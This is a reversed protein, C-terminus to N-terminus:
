RQSLGRTPPACPRIRQSYNSHITEVGPVRLELAAVSIERLRPAGRAVGAPGRPHDDPEPNVRLADRRGGVEGLEHTGRESDVADEPQGPTDAAEDRRRSLDHHASEEVSFDRNQGPTGDGHGCRQDHESDGDIRRLDEDQTLDCVSPMGNASTGSTIKERRRLRMPLRVLLTRVVIVLPRTVARTMPSLTTNTVWVITSSGAPGV